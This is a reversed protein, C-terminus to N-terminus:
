LTIISGFKPFLNTPEPASAHETIEITIPFGPSGIKTYTGVPGVSSAPGEWTSISPYTGIIWKSGNDWVLEDFGEAVYYRGTEPNIVYAPDNEPPQDSVHVNIKSPYSGRGIRHWIEEWAPGGLGARDIIRVKGGRGEFNLLLWTPQTQIEQADCNALTFDEVAHTSGEEIALTLEGTKGVPYTVPLSIQFGMREAVTSFELIRSWTYGRLKNERGITKGWPSGVLRSEQVSGSLPMTPSEDMWDGHDLLVLGDISFRWRSKIM